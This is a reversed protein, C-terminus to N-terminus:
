ARRRRVVDPRRLVAVWIPLKPTPLAALITCVLAAVAVIILVTLM